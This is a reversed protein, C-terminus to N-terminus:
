SKIMNVILLILSLHIPRRCIYFFLIIPGPRCFHAPKRLVERRGALSQLVCAGAQAQVWPCRAWSGSINGDGCPLCFAWVPNTLSFYNLSWEFEISLVGISIGFINEIMLLPFFYQLQMCVKITLFTLNHDYGEMYRDTTSILNIGFKLSNHNWWLIANSM